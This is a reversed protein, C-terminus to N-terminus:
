KNADSERENWRRATYKVNPNHEPTPKARLRGVFNLPEALAVVPQLLDVPRHHDM